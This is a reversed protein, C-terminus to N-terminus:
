FGSDSPGGSPSAGGYLTRYLELNRRILRVYDRTEGLGIREVFLEPDRAAAGTAWRPVRTPGANYAALAQATDNGFRELSRALYWTGLRLNTGPDLLDPSRWGPVRLTRAAQRATGPMVQMLGLAGVRSRADSRWASEQRIVAAVLMPDVRPGAAPALHADYHWPYLLRYTRFDAPAGLRVARRAAALAAGPEGARRLADAIALARDVSPTAEALLWDLEQNAEATMGMARLVAVRGVTTDLDPYPHFQDAGPAPRWTPVQLRRASLIAYYSSSDRAIVSQWLGTARRPEGTESFARGAWYGAALGSELGDRLHVTEWERAAAARDGREYLLLAAQFGSRGAMESTPFARLLEAWYGRAAELRGDAAALDGALALAQPRTVTDDPFRDLLLRLTQQARREAGRHQEQRARRYLAEAGIVPNRALRELIRAAEGGRRTASLSAAYALSDEAGLLHQRNARALFRAAPEALGRAAALRGTGLLAPPSLEPLHDGLLDIGQPVFPAGPRQRLVAAIGTLLAQRRDATGAVDLFLRNAPIWQGLSDYRLAAGQLDGAAERLEAEVLLIRTRVAPNAIRAYLAGRAVSDPTLRAARLLFWDRAMPARAALDLYHAASEASDGATALAVPQRAPLPERVPARATGSIGLLLLLSQSLMM